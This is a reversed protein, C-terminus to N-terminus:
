YPSAGGSAATLTEYYQKVRQHLIDWLHEIPSLDPPQSPSSDWRNQVYWAIRTGCPHQYCAGKDSSFKKVISLSQTSKRYHHLLSVLPVVICQSVAALNRVASTWNLNENLEDGTQIHKPLRGLRISYLSTLFHHTLKYLKLKVCKRDTALSYIPLSHHENQARKKEPIATKLLFM